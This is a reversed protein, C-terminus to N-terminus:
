DNTEGLADRAVKAILVTSKEQICLSGIMKLADRLRTKEAACKRIVEMRKEGAEEYGALEERLREVEARLGGIKAGWRDISTQYQALPVLEGSAVAADIVAKARMYAGRENHTAYRSLLERKGAQIAAELDDKMQREEVCADCMSGVTTCVGEGCDTYFPVGDRLMVYDPDPQTM